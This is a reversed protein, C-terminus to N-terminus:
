LSKRFCVMDQLIKGEEVIPHDYNDTFFGVITHSYRFGCSQYFATTSTSDGTGVLMTHFMRGYHCCLYDVIRRGLGKRQYEPVVALNKLECVGEGEDTVVAVAKPASGEAVFCAFLEGRELYRDIMSEQEDGLLLLDLYRKKDTVVPVVRMAVLPQAVSSGEQMDVLSVVRPLMQEAFERRMHLVPFPNGQEDYADRQYVQFGKQQYFRLAQGNQENVDVQTVGYPGVAEDLLRSGWGQGMCEPALFLMEIKDEQIGMFGLPYQGQFVVLLHEVERLAIQVYPELQEIDCDTLFHHSVRVSEKWVLVLRELLDTDRIGKIEVIRRSEMFLCM